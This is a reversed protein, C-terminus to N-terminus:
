AIGPNFCGLAQKFSLRRWRGVPHYVLFGRADPLTTMDALLITDGYFGTTDLRSKSIYVAGPIESLDWPSNVKIPRADPRREGVLQCWRNHM